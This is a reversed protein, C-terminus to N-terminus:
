RTASGKSRGQRPPRHDRSPWDRHQLAASRERDYAARTRDRAANVATWNLDNATVTFQIAALLKGLVLTLQVRAQATDARGSDIIATAAQLAASIQETLPLLGPWTASGATYPAPSAAATM